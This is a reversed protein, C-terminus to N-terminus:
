GAAPPHAPSPGPAACRNPATAPCCWRAGATDHARCCEPSQGKICPLRLLAARHAHNGTNAAEAAHTAANSQPYFVAPHNAHLWLGSMRDALALQTGLAPGTAEGDIGMAAQGLRQDLFVALKARGAPVLGQFPDGFAQAIGQILAAGAPHPHDAAGPGAILIVVGRLFEGSRHEAAVIDVVARADAVAGRHRAQAAGQARPRHAVANGIDVLGLQNQHHPGIDGLVVGHDARAHQAGLGTAGGQDHDVWPARAQRAQGIDM